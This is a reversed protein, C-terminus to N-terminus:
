KKKNTFSYDWIMNIGRSYFGTHINLFLYSSYNYEFLSKGYIEKMMPGMIYNASANITANVTSQSVAKIWGEKSYGEWTQGEFLFQQGSYSVLGGVEYIAFSTLFKGGPNLKWNLLSLLAATGASYLAKNMDLQEGKIAQFVLSMGGSVIASTGGRALPVVVAAMAPLSIAVFKSVIIPTGVSLMIGEYFMVAAVGAAREHPTLGDASGTYWGSKIALDLSRMRNELERLEEQELKSNYERMLNCYALNANMGIWNLGIEDSNSILNCNLINERGNLLYINNTMGFLDNVPTKAEQMLRMKEGREWQEGIWRSREIEKQTALGPM